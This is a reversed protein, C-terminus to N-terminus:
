GSARAVLTWCWPSKVAAATCSAQMMTAVPCFGIVRTHFGFPTHRDDEFVDTVLHTYERALVADTAAPMLAAAVMFQRRFEPRVAFRGVEAIDNSQIM